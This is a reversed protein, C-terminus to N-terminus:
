MDQLVLATNLYKTGQGSRSAFLKCHNNASLVPLHLTPHNKDQGHNQKSQLHLSVTLFTICYKAPVETFFTAEVIILIFPLKVTIATTEAPVCVRAGPSNQMNKKTTQQNKESNVKEFFEKLFIMTTEAPVNVCM